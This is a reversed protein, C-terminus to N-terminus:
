LNQELNYMDEETKSDIEDDTLILPVDLPRYDVQVDAKLIELAEILDEDSYKELNKEFNAMIQAMEQDM